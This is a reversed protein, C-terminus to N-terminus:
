FGFLLRCVNHPNPKQFGPPTHMYVEKDLDGLLFINNVDMQHLEWGKATTVDLFTRVSMMKAVPAFIENYNFAQLREDGQIVLCAKYGEISENSNYKV